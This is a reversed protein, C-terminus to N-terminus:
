HCWLGGMSYGILGTKEVNVIGSLYHNSEKNLRDIENLIFLDDLSRNLLTSNFGTADRFTSDTHDIAVVVYGKSALNETLYSMIYRSGTYGHSVILLPYPGNTKDPKADRLARGKFTFPILPRDPSNFNGMVDEYIVEENEGEALLAPYWIEVTLPRDYISDKDKSSNLIDIQDHHILM